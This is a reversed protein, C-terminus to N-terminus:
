VSKHKDRLVLLIILGLIYLLGLLGVFFSYGKARAYLCCGTVFGIMGALAVISGLTTLVSQQSSLAYAALLRGVITLILGIGIFVNSKSQYEAIM